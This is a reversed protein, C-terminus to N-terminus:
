LWDMDLHDSDAKKPSKERLHTLAHGLRVYHKVSCYFQFDLLVVIDYQFTMDLPLKIYETQVAIHGIYRWM